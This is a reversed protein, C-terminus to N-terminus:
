KRRRNYSNRSSQAKQSKTRKKFGVKRSFAKQPPKPAIKKEQFIIILSNTKWTRQTRISLKGAIDLGVRVYFVEDLSTLTQKGHVRKPELTIMDMPSGIHQAVLEKGYQVRLEIDKETVNEYTNMFAIRYHGKTSKRHQKYADAGHNVMGTIGRPMVGRAISRNVSGASYDRKKSM